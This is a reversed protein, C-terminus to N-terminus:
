TRSLVAITLYHYGTGILNLRQGVEPPRDLGWIIGFPVDPRVADLETVIVLAEFPGDSYGLTVSM